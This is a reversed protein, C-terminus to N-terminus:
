CLQNMDLIFGGWILPCTNLSKVRIWGWRELLGQMGHVSGLNKKSTCQITSYLEVFNCVQAELCISITAPLLLYAYGGEIASNLNSAIWGGWNSPFRIRYPEVMDISPWSRRGFKHLLASAQTCDWQMMLGPCLGLWRRIKLGDQQSELLHWM